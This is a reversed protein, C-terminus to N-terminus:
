SVGEGDKKPKCGGDKSTTFRRLYNLYCLAEETVMRLEDASKGCLGDLFARLGGSCVGLDKKVTILHKKIAIFTNAYGNKVYGEADAQEAAANEIAFALAGLFGNQVIQAPVKKAVSRGGEKGLGIKPAASLANKARIQELNQNVMSDSASGSVSISIGM